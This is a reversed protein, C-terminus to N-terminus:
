RRARGARILYTQAASSRGFPVYTFPTASNMRAGPDARGPATRIPATLIPETRDARHAGSRPPVARIVNPEAPEARGPNTPSNTPDCRILVM